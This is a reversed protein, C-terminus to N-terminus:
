DQDIRIKRNQIRARKFQDCKWDMSESSVMIITRNPGNHLRDNAIEHELHHLWWAKETSHLGTMVEDLLLLDPDMSLARVLAARRCFHRKVENPARDMYAGLEFLDVWKQLWKEHPENMRGHYRLPLMINQGISIDPLLRGDGEFVVGVRLRLPLLDDSEIQEVPMGFLSVRGKQPKWIGAMVLLTQTKGSGIDGLLICHEGEAMQFDAEELIVENPSGSPWFSVGELQVIPNM